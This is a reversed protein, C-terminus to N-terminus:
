TCYTSTLSLLAGLLPYHTLTPVFRHNEVTLLEAIAAYMNEGFIEKSVYMIYNPNM